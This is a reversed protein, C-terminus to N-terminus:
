GPKPTEDVAGGDAVAAPEAAPIEEHREPRAIGLETADEDFDIKTFQKMMSRALFFGCIVLFLLSALGLLGPTVRAPDISPAPTPSPSVAAHVVALSATLDVSM